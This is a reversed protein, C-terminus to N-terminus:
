NVESSLSFCLLTVSFTSIKTYIQNDMIVKKIMNEELKIKTRCAM